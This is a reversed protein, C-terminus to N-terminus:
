VLQAAQKMTRHCQM